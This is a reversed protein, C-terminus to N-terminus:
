GVALQRAAAEALRRDLMRKLGIRMHMKQFCRQSPAFAVVIGDPIAPRQRVLNM